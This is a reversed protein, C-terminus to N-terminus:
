PWPRCRRWEEVVRLLEEVCRRKCDLYRSYDSDSCVYGCLTAAASVLLHRPMSM